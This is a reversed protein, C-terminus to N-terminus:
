KPGVGGIKIKYEGTFSRRARPFAGTKTPKTLYGMAKEERANMVIEMVKGTTEKLDVVKIYRELDEAGEVFRELVNPSKRFLDYNFFAGKEGPYIPIPYINSEVLDQFFHTGYSAEPTADGHPLAVEVLARANFIEGYAVPVGLDINSSGWRGPGVLIFTRGPLTTNLRGIIRSMRIKVQPDGLSQYAEPDVYVVHRIARIRGSTVMRRSVLLIDREDVDEPLDIDEEEQRRSQQRCQLLVIRFDLESGPKIDVTFEIDVPKGYHRQLKALMGKMVTVFRRNKLLGEHTIVVDGKVTGPGRILVPHLEGGTDISGIHRLFPFATDIVDSVPLTEMRNVVLNIADLQKQSYQIVEETSKVPQLTPHSLAVMQAYDNPLRDVARTGMGVVIRLFGAERDIRPSWQFPNESFGVGAVTPFYHDGFRQGEVRQILVAMREDYDILEMQQRYALADPSLLSAYVKKIADCLDEHNQEPTGQNPCFFSDYKGAFSIGFNDELLSSSRVIVPSDGVQELIGKLRERYPEPIRGNLFRGRIEPYLEVIEEYSTYKLNVIDGLNNAELFEYTVDSGLFYSDPVRVVERFDVPDDPEPRHLIAKALMMGGAKGGIKGRGIRRGYIAELDSIAFANKAIGVFSLQDSLMGKTLVVICERMHHRMAHQRQASSKEIQKAQAFLMKWPAIEPNFSLYVNEESPIQGKKSLVEEVIRLFDLHTFNLAFYFETLIDSIRGLRRQWQEQSEQTMPDDLRERRQSRIAKERAEHKFTAPDIIGSSFLKDRMQERIKDCLIPYQLLELHIALVKPRTRVSFTEFGENHM